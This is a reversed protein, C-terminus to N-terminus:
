RRVVRIWTRLFSRRGQLPAPFGGSKIANYSARRKLAKYDEPYPIDRPGIGTGLAVNSISATKYRDDGLWLVEDIAKNSLGLEKMEPRTIRPSPSKREAARRRAELELKKFEEPDYEIKKVKLYRELVIPAAGRHFLEPTAHHIYQDSFAVGGFPNVNGAAEIETPKGATQRALELDDRHVKPLKRKMAEQLEEIEPPNAVFQPGQIVVDTFYNLNVFVTDGTTDKHFGNMNPDRSPYYHVEAIIQWCAHDYESWGRFYAIQGQRIMTEMVLWAIGNGLEASQQVLDRIDSMGVAAFYLNFELQAQALLEPDTEDPLTQPLVIGGVHAPVWKKGEPQGSDPQFLRPDNDFGRLLQYIRRQRDIDVAGFVKPRFATILSRGRVAKKYQERTTFEKTTSQYEQGKFEGKVKPRLSVKKPSKADAKGKPKAKSKHKVKSKDEVKPQQDRRQNKMETETLWKEGTWIYKRQQVVSPPRAPGVGAQKAQIPLTSTAAHLGMREAEAELAPDQVVAVGVGMPNRVRGARQQVVHALEHGLLRQGHTSQPNYQGPAFYLDAGHTFALAGISPAEPGVHVRVDAFSTNFFSEMKKQIPAPLPAGSGRPKLMFNAPLAFANGAQPQVASLRAPQALIPQPLQSRPSMGPQVAGPRVPTPLIPRPPQGPRLAPQLAGMAPRGPMIPGAPSVPRALVPTPTPPRVPAAPAPSAQLIKPRGGPFSGQIVRAPAGAPPANIPGSSLNM